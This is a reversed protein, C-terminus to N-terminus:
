EIIMNITLTYSSRVIEGNKKGPEWKPMLQIVRVLENHLEPCGSNKDTTINTISGDKEVIFSATLKIHKSYDVANPGFVYTNTIFEYMAKKGGPFSPKVEISDCNFPTEDAISESLNETLSDKEMEFTIPLYYSVIEHSDSRSNWKPMISVVRVAEKDLAPHVRRVVEIDAITGDSKVKIELVVKGSAGDKAAEPPYILNKALFEYMAKEGGPFVPREDRLMFMSVPEPQEKVGDKSYIVAPTVVLLAILLPKM